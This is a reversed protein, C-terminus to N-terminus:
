FIIQRSHSTIYFIFLGLIKYYGEQISSNLRQVESSTKNVRALM